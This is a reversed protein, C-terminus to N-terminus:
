KKNILEKKEKIQARMWEEFEHGTRMLKKLDDTDFNRVKFLWGKGYPSNNITKPEDVVEENVKDITGTIPSYIKGSWKGSSITGAPASQEVEEDPELLSINKIGGALKQAFDNLGVVVKDGEVKAWTHEKHYYLDDPFEFEDIKM